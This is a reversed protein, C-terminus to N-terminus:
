FSFMVFNDKRRLLVYQTTKCASSNNSAYDLRILNGAVPAQSASNEESFIHIIFQQGEKVATFSVQNEKLVERFSKEDVYPPQVCIKKAGRIKLSVSSESTLNSAAEQMDSVFKKAVRNERDNWWHYATVGSGFLLLLVFLLKLKSM